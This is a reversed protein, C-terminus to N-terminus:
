VFRFVTSVGLVCCADCGWLYVCSGKLWNPVDWLMPASTDLGARFAMLLGRLNRVDLLPAAGEGRPELLAALQLTQYVHCRPSLRPCRSFRLLIM